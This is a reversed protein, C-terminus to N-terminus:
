ILKNLNINKNLSEMEEPYKDIFKNIFDSLFDRLVKCFIDVKVLRCGNNSSFIRRDDLLGENDWYIEVNDSVRRIFLHPLNSGDAAARLWHSDLWEVVM